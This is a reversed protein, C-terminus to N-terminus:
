KTLIKRIFHCLNVSNRGSVTASLLLEIYSYFQLSFVYCFFVFPCQLWSTIDM